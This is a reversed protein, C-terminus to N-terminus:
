RPSSARITVETGRPLELSDKGQVYVSGAGGAAGVVAGIVAGKAGGAIAGIIAGIATGIGGRQVTQNTQSNGQASGENDVKVTESDMTRISSLVGAFRYTEATRLRISNFNLSMSSRGTLRGSEEVKGVTGDIVAGEYRGPERVTMSFSDGQKTQRTSLENNLVAVVTEGDAVIFPGGSSDPNTSVAGEGDNINWQAVESTQNYVSNVVIPQVLRDSYIERKVRLRSGSEISEFTVNFDNERYGTSSIVLQDGRLTATVLSSRNNSLQESHEVGDAEFTSQRARSSAITITSGRREIALMEPSELRTLMGDSVRRRDNPSLTRTAADAAERPNDSRSSDLRFTGTLRSNSDSAVPPQANQWNASRNYASGLTDLDARLTSWDSQVQGTLRNNHMFVDIPTAQTLVRDVYEVVPRRADLQNRLGETASKFNRVATNMDRESTSRDYGSQGFAETLSSRFTDGGIDIRQVLQSLDNDSLRSRNLNAPLSAQQNWQWSVNYAQALADLDTRVRAWDNRVRANLRNRSIFDNISLARQLVNRVDSSRARNRNLQTRFEAVANAFDPQFTNIDNQSRSQDVNAEILAANLSTRFNTYDRELRQLIVAVQRATTGSQRQAQATLGAIAFALAVVLLVILKSKKM